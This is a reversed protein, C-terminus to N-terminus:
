MCILYIRQFFCFFFVFCCVQTFLQLLNELVCVFISKDNKSGPNTQTIQQDANVAEELGALGGFVIIAHQFPPLQFQPNNANIGRESTGISLDYGGEYPCDSWIASFSSVLRTTYGWYMGLKERPEAPSVASGHVVACTFNFFSFKFFMTGIYKHFMYAILM